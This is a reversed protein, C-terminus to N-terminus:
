FFRTVLSSPTFPVRVQEAGGFHESKTRRLLKANMRLPEQGLHIPCATALIAERNSLYRPLKSPYIKVTEEVMSSYNQSSVEAASSCTNIYKNLVVVVYEVSFGSPIQTMLGMGKIMGASKRVGITM